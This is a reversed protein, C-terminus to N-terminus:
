SSDGVAASGARTRYGTTAKPQTSRTTAAYKFTKTRPDQERESGIQARRPTM